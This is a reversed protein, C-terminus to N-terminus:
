NCLRADPGLVRRTYVGARHIANMGLLVFRLKSTRLHQIDVRHLTNIAASAHRDAWDRGNKSEVVQRFFPLGIGLLVGLVVPASAWVTFIWRAARTSRAETKLPHYAQNKM